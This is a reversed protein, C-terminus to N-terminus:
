LQWEAPLVGRTRGLTVYYTWAKGVFHKRDLSAAFDAIEQQTLPLVRGLQSALIMAEANEVFTACDVLVAPVSEAAVVQGHARILLAHAGGLTAALARGRAPSNVHGPDPHVPIGNAWRIAHNKILKLAANEVMTFVTTRDHHFHAVANVDPRARMIETHLFIESPPKVGAPGDLVKGDFDSILLDDPGLKSRPQDRSQIVIADRGPLRAGVHGSYGLLGLDNLLLTCAAVQQRLERQDPEIAASQKKVTATSM